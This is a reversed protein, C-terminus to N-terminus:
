ILVTAKRLRDNVAQWDQSQPPQEVLIVDLQQSDLQRLAAYLGQAYLDAQEPLHIVPINDPTKSQLGCALLGCKQNNGVLQQLVQGIQNSDCRVAKTSPAYHVDMMGPARIELPTEAQPLLIETGLVETLQAITIHGPRLLRPQTGSLDIITSEVGVLCAGGDLATLHALHLIHQPVFRMTQSTNGIIRKGDYVCSIPNKMVRIGVDFLKSSFRPTLVSRLSTCCKPLMEM